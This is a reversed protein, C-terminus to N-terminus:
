MVLAPRIVITGTMATAVDNQAVDRVRLRHDYPGLPLDKTDDPALDIIVGGDVATIGAGLTKRIVAATDDAPVRSVLYELELGDTSTFPLGDATDIDITLTHSNGRFITFNQNAATM